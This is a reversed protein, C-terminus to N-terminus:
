SAHRSPDGAGRLFDALRSAAPSGPAEWVDLHGAGAVELLTAGVGHSAFAEVIRRSDAPPCIEDGDGHLVLVPCRVRQADDLRAAALPASGGWRRDLVGLLAIAPGLNVRWPLGRAALVGRSPTAVDLSLGELVLGALNAGSLRGAAELSVAAGLSRGYLVVHGGRTSSSDTGDRDGLLLRLLTLLDESERLGLSSRGESEGHGPLDWLVVRSVDAAAISARQLMVVKSEGWGHTMVLLPGGPADGAIDWASLTRGRSVFSFRRFDRPRELEGPDGALGKAVAWTYGRRVPVVLGRWTVLVLALWYVLLGVGLLPLLDLIM